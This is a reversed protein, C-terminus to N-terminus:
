KYMFDFYILALLAHTWGLALLWYYRKHFYPAFFPVLFFYYYGAKQFAHTVSTAMFFIIGVAIMARKDCIKFKDRVVIFLLLLGMLMHLPWAVPPNITFHYTSLFVAISEIINYEPNIIDRTWTYAKLMPIYSALIDFGLDLFLGSAVLVFLWFRISGFSRVAIWILRFAVVLLVNNEFTLTYLTLLTAILLAEQWPKLDLRVIAFPYLFFEVKVRTALYASYPWVLYIGLNQKPILKLSFLITLEIISILLFALRMQIEQDLPYLAQTYIQQIYGEPLLARLTDVSRGFDADVVKLPTTSIFLLAMILFSAAAFFLRFDVDTGKTSQKLAAAEPITSNPVTMNDM